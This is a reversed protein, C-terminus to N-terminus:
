PCNLAIQDAQTCSLVVCRGGLNVYNWFRLGLCREHSGANCLKDPATRLQLANDALNANTTNTPRAGDYFTLLAGPDAQLAEVSKCRTLCPLKKRGGM